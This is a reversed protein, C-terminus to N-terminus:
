RGGHRTNFNDRIKRLREAQEEEYKGVSRGLFFVLLGAAIFLLPGVLTAM